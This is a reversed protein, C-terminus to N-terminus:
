KNIVKIRNNYAQIMYTGKPLTELSVDASGTGDAKLHCVTRGDITYIYVPTGAPMGNFLVHGNAYQPAVTRQEIGTTGDSVEYKDIDDLPVSITTFDNTIVLDEGSFTIVPNTALELITENGSKQKIVIKANDAYTMIAIFLFLFLLRLKM